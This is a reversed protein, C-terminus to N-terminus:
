NQNMPQQQYMVAQGQMPQQQYMPQQGQMQNGDNNPFPMGGEQVTKSTTVASEETAGSTATEKILWNAARRIVSMFYCEMFAGIVITLIISLAMYVLLAGWFVWFDESSSCFGSTMYERFAEPDLIEKM